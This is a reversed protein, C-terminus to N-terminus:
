PRERRERAMGCAGGGSIRARRRKKEDELDATRGKEPAPQREGEREATREAEKIERDIQALEARLENREEIQRADEGRDREIGRREMAVVNPGKHMTPEHTLREAFEHDGRELAAARQKELTEHGHRWREAELKFGARELARAGMHAWKERWAELERRDPEVGRIEDQRVRRGDLKRMTLLCHVHYNREDGNEHPAHINVDAIM